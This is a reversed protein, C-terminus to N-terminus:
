RLAAVAGAGQRALRRWERPSTGHAARFRRSFHAADAFGSRRAVAAVTDATTTLRHAARDLRRAVIWEALGTATHGAWAYYLRRVSVHHAAAIRAACLSTEDLHQLVYREVRLPLTDELAQAAQEATGAATTLLTRVLDVTVDGVVGAGPTGQLAPLAAHTRAVHRRVLDWVPSAAPTRVARRVLGEPLGLEDLGIGIGLVDTGDPWAMTHPETLDLVLLGGPRCEYAEGAGRTGHAAGAALHHVVIRAESTAAVERRERTCRMASGRAQMAILRGVGWTAVWTRLSGVPPACEFRMPSAGAELYEEMALRRQRADMTSMELLATM